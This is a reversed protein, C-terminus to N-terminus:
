DAQVRVASYDTMVCWPRRETGGRVGIPKLRPGPAIVKNDFYRNGTSPCEGTAKTCDKQRSKDCFWEDIIFDAEIKTFTNHRIVNENSDDRLKVVSGCADSFTNNEIINRSSYHALYIAHLARCARASRISEFTNGVIRNDSSNVLRLAATPATGTENGSPAGIRRFVLSELVTGSNGKAPDNRDAELSVAVGYNEVVLGRVTLGTAGGARSKFTLWTQQAGAGVFRVTGPKAAARPAVLIAGAGKGDTLIATQDTYEGEWIVVRADEKRQTLTSAIDLARQLTRVATADSEGSARDDGHPALHVEGAHARLLAVSTLFFLGLIRIRWAM